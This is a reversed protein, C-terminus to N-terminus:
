GGKPPMRIFGNANLDVPLGKDKLHAVLHPYQSPVLGDWNSSACQNCVMVGGWAHVPRGEYVHMGEQFQHRCLFCTQMFAEDVNKDRGM